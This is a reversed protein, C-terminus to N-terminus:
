LSEGKVKQLYEVPDKGTENCVLVLAEQLEDATYADPQYKQLIIRNGDVFIEVPDRFSIELTRLIERPITFRGLQDIKRVIGTSKV